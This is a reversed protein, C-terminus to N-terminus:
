KQTGRCVYGFDVIYRSLVTHEEPLKRRRRPDDKKSKPKGTVTIPDIGAAIAEAVKIQTEKKVDIAEREKGLLFNCLHVRDAEEELEHQTYAHPGKALNLESRPARSMATDM